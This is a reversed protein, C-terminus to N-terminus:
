VGGAAARAERWPEGGSGPLPTCGQCFRWRPSTAGGRARTTDLRELPIRSCNGIVAPRQSLHGDCAVPAPASVRM